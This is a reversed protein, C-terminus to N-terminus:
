LTAREITFNSPQVVAVAIEQQHLRTRAGEREAIGSRRAHWGLEGRLRQPAIVVVGSLHRVRKRSEAILDRRDHQFRDRAVHIVHPGRLGEDIRQAECQVFCPATSIKAFHHRTKAHGRAARLREDANRGSRVVSPLTIPPPERHACEPPRRSIM